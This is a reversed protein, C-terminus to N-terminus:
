GTVNHHNSWYICCRDYLLTLLYALLLAGFITLVYYVADEDNNTDSLTINDSTINSWVFALNTFILLLFLKM